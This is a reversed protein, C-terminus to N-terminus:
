NKRLELVKEDVYKTLGPDGALEKSKEYAAIAENKNGISEYSSALYFWAEADPKKAIVTKFREIAKDFQGSKISFLGLNMNAKVNEPDKKVVDLLLQIGEMPNPTGGVYAVGLGTQADLSGPKLALAKKYANIAKQVLGAKAITDEITQYASTFLDGTKLWAAYNNDSEAISEYYFAGPAPQNVDDWKHALQRQLDLKQEPPASQLATELDSIQQALNPDIAQKASASVSELTVTASAASSAATGSANHQESPKVLGKIDLSLLLGMLVM